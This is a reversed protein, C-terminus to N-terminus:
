ISREKEWEKVVRDEMQLEVVKDYRLEWAQKSKNWKGGAKKVKYSIDKEGWAVKV